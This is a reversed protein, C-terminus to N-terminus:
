RMLGSSSRNYVDMGRGTPVLWYLCFRSAGITKALDVLTDLEGCNEITLTIRVGCRVGADRCRSFAAISREFAGPSNRFRDHTAPIAGDLSIGAYEIGSEKIKWAIDATILTGNTSLAMKIGRRQCPPRFEWIDDRLLPEGGSLILPVGM